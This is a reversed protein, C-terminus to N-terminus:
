EDDDQTASVPTRLAEPFRGNSWSHPECLTRIAREVGAVSREPGALPAGIRAVISWRPGPDYRLGVPVLQVRTRGDAEAAALMKMFGPAFPLWDDFGAKRSGAPDVNPYGEPFVLVVRGARLLRTCDRLAARTYRVVEARRYAGTRAVTPARLVIPYDAARCMWEMTRRQRADVAWDLGVVIHVPRPLRTVLVAGDLLHHFHRAVVLVAGRRPFHELGEIAVAAVQTRLGWQAIAWPGIQGPPPYV